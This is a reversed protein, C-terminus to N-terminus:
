PIAIASGPPERRTPSVFLDNVPPAQAVAPKQGRDNALTPIPRGIWGVGVAGM